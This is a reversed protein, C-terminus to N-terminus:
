YLIRPAGLACLVTSAADVHARGSKPPKRSCHLVVGTANGLLASVRQMGLIGGRRESRMEGNSAANRWRVGSLGARRDGRCEHHSRTQAVDAGHVNGAGIVGNLERIPKVGVESRRWQKCQVYFTRRRQAVRFGHRRGCWRRCEGHRFLGRRRFAEGVISEFQWLGAGGQWTLTSRQSRGIRNRARM